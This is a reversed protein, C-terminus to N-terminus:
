VKVGVNVSIVGNNNNNQMEANGTQMQQPNVAAFCCPCCCPNYCVNTTLCIGGQSAAMILCVITLGFGPGTGTSFLDYSSNLWGPYCGFAVANLYYVYPNAGAGDGGHALVVICMIMLLLMSAGSLGQIILKITDTAKSALIAGALGLVIGCVGFFIGAKAAAAASQYRKAYLNWNSCKLSGASDANLQDSTSQMNECIANLVGDDAFIKNSVPASDDDTTFNGYYSHDDDGDDGSLDNIKANWGWCSYDGYSTFSGSPIIDGYTLGTEGIKTDSSPVKLFCLGNSLSISWQKAPFLNFVPIAFPTVFQSTLMIKGNYYFCKDNALYSDDDGGVNADDDVGGINNYTAQFGAWAPGNAAIGMFIAGLLGCIMVSIWGYLSLHRLM